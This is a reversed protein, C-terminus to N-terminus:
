GGQKVWQTLAHSAIATTMLGESDHFGVNRLDAGDSRSPVLLHASPPWGNNAEFLELLGDVLMEVLPDGCLRLAIALLLRHSLEFASATLDSKHQLWQQIESGVEAPLGGSRRLFEVSWYTAYTNTTWWFSQWGAGPERTRLVAERVRAISHGSPQAALLALGVMATVDPHADGWTGADRELFTHARGHLDLFSELRAAAPGASIGAVSLFRVAWATSDADSGKTRNYGWGGSGYCGCVARLAKQLCTRVESRSPPSCSALCWGVWATSWAESMGPPLHYDRWFGDPSQRLLLCHIGRQVVNSVSRIAATSHM